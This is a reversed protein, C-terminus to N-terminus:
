VGREDRLRPPCISGQNGNEEDHHQPDDHDRAGGGDNRLLAGVDDLPEALVRLRQRRPEVDQHREDLPDGVLARQLFGRDFNRFLDADRAVVHLDVDVAHQIQLHQVGLEGEYPM